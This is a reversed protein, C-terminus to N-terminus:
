FKMGAQQVKRHDLALGMLGEPQDAMFWYNMLITEVESIRLDIMM